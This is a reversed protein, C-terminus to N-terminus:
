LPNIKHRWLARDKSIGYVKGEFQSDIEDNSFKEFRSDVSKGKKKSLNGGAIDTLETLDKSIKLIVWRDM